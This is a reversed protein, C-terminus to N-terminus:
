HAASLKITSFESPLANNKAWKKLDVIQVDNRGQRFASEPLIMGFGHIGELSPAKGGDIPSRLWLTKVFGQVDKDPLYTRTVGRLVGNVLAGLLIPKEVPNEFLIRGTVFTPVFDSSLDVFNWSEPNRTEVRFSNSVDITDLHARITAPVSYMRDLIDRTGSGFLAIKRRVSAQTEVSQPDFELWKRARTGVNSFAKKKTRPVARDRLASFGDMQWDTLIRLAEAITPLIDVTEVERELIGQQSNGPFKMLLPVSLIDQYNIKNLTRYPNGPVFGAGHDATVVVLAQDYLGTKKLRDILQGMLRDVFGVQLLHRQYGRAVVWEDTTWVEEQISIGEAGGPGFSRYDYRKGSPLYEWPVHPLVCHFFFLTPKKTPVILSLVKQFQEMRQSYPDPKSLSNGSKQNWFNGWSLGISPLSGSFDSPAIVHLYVACLDVLTSQLQKLLSSEMAGSVNFVRPCLETIPEFVNLEYSGALMTFLNQPYDKAISLRSPDPYKGTLIATVAEPTGDAVTTAKRFWISDEMLRHFNPYRVPDIDGNEDLLSVVPFEDFVLVFVPATASVKLVHPVDSDDSRLVKGISHNTLFLIPIILLSLSLYNVLIRAAQLRSVLVLMLVGGLFATGILITGPLMELNKLTPMLTTAALLVFLFGHVVERLKPHIWGSLLEIVALIGPIGISLLIALLVIELPKSHKAIFFESNRSLLDFLPQAVGFNFLVFLSLVQLVGKRYGTM